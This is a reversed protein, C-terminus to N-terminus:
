TTPIHTPPPSVGTPAPAPASLSPAPHPLSPPVSWFPPFEIMDFRVLVPIVRESQFITESLGWYIVLATQDTGEITSYAPAPGTGTYILIWSSGGTGLAGLWLFHNTVPLGFGPTTGMCAILAWHNIDVPEAIQVYIREQGPQGRDEVSHIRLPAHGNM